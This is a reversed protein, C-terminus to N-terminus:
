EPQVDLTARYESKPIAGSGKPYPDLSVLTITQGAHTFARPEKGETFVHYSAAAAGATATIVVEAFGAAICQEGTPCRSDGVVDDFRLQVRGDAAGATEGPALTLRGDSQAALTAPTGRCSVLAVVTLITVVQLMWTRWWQIWAGNTSVQMRELELVNAGEDQEKFV